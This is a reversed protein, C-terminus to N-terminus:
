TGTDIGVPNIPVPTPNTFTGDSERISGIRITSDTSLGVVEHGEPPSWESEGNWRWRLDNADYFDNLSPNSPFNLPSM